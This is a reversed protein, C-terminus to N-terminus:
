KGPKDLIQNQKEKLMIRNIKSCVRKSKIGLYKLFSMFNQQMVYNEGRFDTEKDNDSAFSETDQALFTKENQLKNRLDQDFEPYKSAGSQSSSISTKLKSNVETFSMDAITERKEAGLFSGKVERSKANLDKTYEDDSEEIFSEELDLSSGSNTEGSNDLMTATILGFKKLLKMFYEKELYKYFKNNEGSSNTNVTDPKDEFVCKTLHALFNKRNVLKEKLLDRQNKTASDTSGEENDDDSSLSIHNKENELESTFHDYVQKVMLDDPKGEGTKGENFQKSMMNKIVKGDKKVSSNMNLLIRDKFFKMADGECTDFNKTV